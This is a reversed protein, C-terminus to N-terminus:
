LIRSREPVGVETQIDTRASRCSAPRPDDRFATPRDLNRTPSLSDLRIEGASVRVARLNRSKPPRFHSARIHM